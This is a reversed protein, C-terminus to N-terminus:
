KGVIFKARDYLEDYTIIEVNRSDRRYLEFTKRKINKIGIPDDSKEIENWNGILLITKSDYSNQTIPEYNDNSLNRSTEIKVQGSAKQELIQSVADIFSNSFRWCNSRNKEKGFLETTPLKLEIFVTFRNDGMLFDSIVGEKGSATTNSAHFEKQLIGKFKYDLGYGFM